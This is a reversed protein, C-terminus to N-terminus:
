RATRGVRSRGAGLDPRAFCANMGLGGCNAEHTPESDHAAPDPMDPDFLQPARRARRKQNWANVRVIKAMWATLDIWRHQHHTRARAPTLEPAHFPLKVERLVKEVSQPDRSAM